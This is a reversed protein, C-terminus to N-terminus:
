VFVKLHSWRSRLVHMLAENLILDQRDLDAKLRAYTAWRMRKPKPPIDWEDPDLGAPECLRQKIKAKALHARGTPELYQSRYAVRNGWAQRSAFRSAGNPRWLVSALRGTSPCIFYFQRGGFHRPRSTFRIEQEFGPFRVRLSGAKEGGMARPMSGDRLLKSIDLRPGDQLCVRQLPRPM